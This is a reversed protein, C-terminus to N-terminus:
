CIKENFNHLNFFTRVANPDLTKIQQNTTGINTANINTNVQQSRLFESPELKSAPDMNIVLREDDSHDTISDEDTPATYQINVNDSHESTM